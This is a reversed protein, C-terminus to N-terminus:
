DMDQHTVNCPLAQSAATSSCLCLMVDRAPLMRWPQARSRQWVRRAQRTSNALLWVPRRGGASLGGGQQGAAGQLNHALRQQALQPVTGQRPHQYLVPLSAAAHQGEEAPPPPAQPRRLLVLM